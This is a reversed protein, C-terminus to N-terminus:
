RPKGKWGSWNTTLALQLNKAAPGGAAAFARWAADNIARKREAEAMRARYEPTEMEARYRRQFEIHEAKLDAWTFKTSRAPISGAVGAQVPETAIKPLDTGIRAADHPTGEGVFAGQKDARQEDRARDIREREHIYHTLATAINM